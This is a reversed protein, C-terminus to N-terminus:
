GVCHWAGFEDSGYTSRTYIKGGTIDDAEIFMQTIGFYNPMVILSGCKNSPYHYQNNPNSDYEVAYTGATTLTNLDVCYQLASSSASTTEALAPTRSVGIANVCISATLMLVSTGFLLKSLLKEKM